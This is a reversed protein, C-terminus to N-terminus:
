LAVGSSFPYLGALISNPPFILVVRGHDASAKRAQSVPVEHAHVLFCALGFLVNCIRFSMYVTLQLHAPM